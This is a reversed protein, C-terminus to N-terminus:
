DGQAIRVLSQSVQPILAESQAVYHQCIEWGDGLRALEFWIDLQRSSGPIRQKIEDRILQEAPPIMGLSLWFGGFRGQSALEAIM